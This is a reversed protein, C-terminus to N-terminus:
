IRELLLLGVLVVFLLWLAGRRYGRRYRGAARGCLRGSRVLPLIPIFPCFM